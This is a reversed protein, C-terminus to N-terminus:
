LKSSPRGSFEFQANGTFTQSANIIGSWRDPSLMAATCYPEVDLDDLLTQLRPYVADLAKSDMEFQTARSLGLTETYWASDVSIADAEFLELLAPDVCADVAAEYAMRQAIALVLPRCQPLIKKSYEEGRHDQIGTMHAKLEAMVGAEHQALLSNPRKAPPVDYRGILIETALRISLVLVEGEAIGTARTLSEFATMQNHPYVGQAGSREILDKLSSQGNQIFLCKVIVALGHRADPHYAYQRNSYLDTMWDAFAEMVAIRALTHLIPIQQTRFSIIPARKGRAGQQVTRNQSYTGVTYVSCKLFPIIWLSLALAGTGLRSISSLFQNRLNAPMELKGLMASPPLRVQDFSTLSHDLMKGGTISPLLWSQVGKCMEQGDTIPVLFGRVGRDEDKVLLRAFVLGVRRVGPIPMSPPMFKMAGANPTHLTFSGDARWTATTELNRADCGHGVENLMFSASVDFNLVQKMFPKLDPRELVFPALTGAVLNFQITVLIQATTDRVIINDRHVDWFKTTLHHVDELNLDHLRAIHKARFYSRQLEEVRTSDEYHHDFIKLSLLDRSSSESPAPM